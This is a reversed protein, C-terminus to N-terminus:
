NLKILKFDTCKLSFRAKWRTTAETGEQIRLWSFLVLNLWFVQPAQRELTLDEGPEDPVQLVCMSPGTLRRGGGSRASVYRSTVQSM